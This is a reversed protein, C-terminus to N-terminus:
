QNWEGAHSEVVQCSFEETERSRFCKVKGYYSAGGNSADIGFNAESMQTYAQEAKAGEITFSAREWQENAIAFLPIMALFAVAIAKKM